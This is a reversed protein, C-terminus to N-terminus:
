APPKAGLVAGDIRQLHMRALTLNAISGDLVALLVTGPHGPLPHLLLHHATLAISADPQSPGLGLGQGGRAIAGYIALGQDLLVQPGPRAGTHALLGAAHVDMLCASILGKVENCAALYRAWLPDDPQPARRGAPMPLTTPPVPPAAGPSAEATSAVPTVAATSAPADPASVSAPASVAPAADAVPHHSAPAAAAAAGAPPPSAPLRGERLQNWVGAIISWAQNLSTATASVTILPGVPGSLMTAHSALDTGASYPVFLLHRNIWPGNQIALRLPQLQSALVHAPLHGILLAGLRAHGVLLTALQQRAQTDADIDTSYVRLTRSRRGPIEVFRVAALPVGQGQRRIALVQVPTRLATAISALLRLGGSAGVDHVVIFESHQRALQDRVASAADAVAFLEVKDPAVRRGLETQDDGLYDASSEIVQTAPSMLDARPETPQQRSHM